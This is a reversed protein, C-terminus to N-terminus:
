FYRLRRILASGALGGTIYVINMLLKEYFSVKLLKFLCLILLSATLSTRGRRDWAKILLKAHISFKLFILQSSFVVEPAAM